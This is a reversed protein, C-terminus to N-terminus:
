LPSRAGASRCRRPFGDAAPRLPIRRRAAAREHVARARSPHTRHSRREDNTRRPALSAGASRSDSNRRQEALSLRVRHGRCRASWPGSGVANRISSPPSPSRPGSSRGTCTQRNLGCTTPRGSRRNEGGRITSLKTPTLFTLDNSRLAEILEDFGLRGWDVFTTFGFPVVADCVEFWRLYTELVSRAPVVDADLFVFVDGGASGAALNRARGAAFRVADQRVVRLDFPVEYDSAVSRHRRPTM